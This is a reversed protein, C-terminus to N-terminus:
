AETSFYAVAAGGDAPITWVTAGSAVIVTAVSNQGIAGLETADVARIARAGGSHYSSWGAVSAGFWVGNILAADDTVTLLAPLQGWTIGDATYYTGRIIVNGRQFAADSVPATRTTWTIGDLSTYYTTTDTTVVFLNGATFIACGGIGGPMTVSTWTEGQDASRLVELSRSTLVVSGIGAVSPGYHWAANSLDGGSTWTQGHNTSISIATSISSVAVAFGNPAAGVFSLNAGLGTAASTWAEGDTSTYVTGNEETWGIFASATAAIGDFQFGLPHLMGDTIVEGSTVPLYGASAASFIPAQFIASGWGVGTEDSLVSLQKRANGVLSPLGAAAGAAAAAVQASDRYTKAETRYGAAQTKYTSSENKLNTCDTKLATCEDRLTETAARKTEADDRMADVEDSLTNAETRFQPIAALFADAKDSFTSPSDARSPPTPLASIYTM